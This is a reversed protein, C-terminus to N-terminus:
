RTGPPLPLLVSAERAATAAEAPTRSEDWLKGVFRAGTVGDSLPSALWLIPAVMVAPPLLERGEERLMKRAELHVFETDAAGGPILSNVTVGTGDLDKAWIMTEAEIATKSVGYPSNARRQMTPLSTTINVIRGWGSRILHPAATRAM